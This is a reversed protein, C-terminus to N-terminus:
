SKVENRYYMFLTGLFVFINICKRQPCKRLISYSYVSLIITKCLSMNEEVNEQIIIEATTKFYM